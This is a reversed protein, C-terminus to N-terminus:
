KSNIRKENEKKEYLCFSLALNDFSVYSYIKEEEDGNYDDDDVIDVYQRQKRNM